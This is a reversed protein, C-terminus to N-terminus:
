RKRGRKPKSQDDRHQLAALEFQLGRQIHKRILSEAREPKARLLKRAFPVHETRDHGQLWGRSANYVMMSRTILRDLQEVLLPSEALDALHRHFTMHRRAFLDVDEPATGAVEDCDEALDTLHRKQRDTLTGAWRRVAAAELTERVFYRDHVDDPTERPIRVGWRPVNEVLGEKELLRLAGRVTVVAADVSRALMRQSLFQGVPLEGKLILARLQLLARTERTQPEM